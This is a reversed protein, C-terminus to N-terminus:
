FFQLLRQHVSLTFEVQQGPSIRSINLESVASNLVLTDTGAIAAISGGAEVAAGSGATTIVKGTRDATINEPIMSMATSLSATAAAIQSVKGLSAIFTKSAEKNVTAIVDGATVEDGPEVTYEKIVLPLACTVDSQGIYSLSGSSRVTESYSVVKPTVTSCVPVSAEVASPLASVGAIILACAAALAIYKKM